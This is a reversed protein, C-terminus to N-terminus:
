SRLIKGYVDFLRDLVADWGHHREAHSRGRAGLAPLDGELLSVAVEALSGPDGSRFLAGGGSAAVSEAV